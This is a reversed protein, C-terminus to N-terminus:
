STRLGNLKLSRTKWYENAEFTLGIDPSLNSLSDIKCGNLLLLESIIFLRKSDSNNNIEIFKRLSYEFLSITKFDQTSGINILVQMNIDAGCTIYKIVEHIEIRQISRVLLDNIGDISPIYNKLLYKNRIFQLREENLSEPKLKKDQELQQELYENVSKNNIYKLLLENENEFNDLKLSRIRSIHSGLHRHSSSCRVCFVVLFNVSVWEVSETSGCDVCMNNDSNPIARLLSLYDRDFMSSKSQISIPSVSAELTKGPIGPKDISALDTVLSGLKQKDKNEKYSTKNTVKLRNIDVLQGANYLAKIWKNREDENIAQFVHKNGLSTFIEFCHQRKEYNIPKVSSLAIEIPKNIPVKGKRWDSYETLQGNKLVVWEKHWGQKGQGGLTYLIGEMESNQDDRSVMPVATITSVQSTKAFILDLNDKSIYQNDDVVDVNDSPVYRNLKNYRIVNTLEENSQCAEIMQRFQFKESNFKSLVTLYIEYNGLLLNRSLKVDLFIETHLYKGHYHLNIFKFLNELLQNFYQNNLLQNFHNLYHFKSLEFIKRKSLLKLEPREKENSLYKNLWNYYDKSTNEFHKKNYLLENSSSAENGTLNTSLTSSIKDLIKSDCVDRTFFLLNKEFPDFISNIAAKFDTKFNFQSLLSNFQLNVLDNMVEILRKKCILLKKMYFELNRRQEIFEGCIRKFAPLEGEYTQLVERFEPGDEINFSFVKRYDALKAYRIKKTSRLLNKDSQTNVEEVDEKTKQGDVKVPPENDNPISADVWVKFSCLHTYENTASDFEWLLTNMMNDQFISKNFNDNIIIRQYEQHSQDIPLNNYHLKSVEIRMSEYSQGQLVEKLHNIDDNDALTKLIVLSKDNSGALVPKISINLKLRNYSPPFRILLPVMPTTSPNQIYSMLDGIPEKTKTNIKSISICQKIDQVHGLIISYRITDNDNTLFLKNLSIHSGPSQVYPFSLLPINDM